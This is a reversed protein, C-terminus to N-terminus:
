KTKMSLLATQAMSRTCKYETYNKLLCRCAKVCQSNIAHELVSRYSIRASLDKLKGVNLRRQSTKPRRAIILTYNQEACSVPSVSM